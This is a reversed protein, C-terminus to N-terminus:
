TYIPAFDTQRTEVALDSLFQYIQVLLNIFLSRILGIDPQVRTQLIEYFAALAAEAGRLNASEVFAILKSSAKSIAMSCMNDVHVIAGEGLFHKDMLATLAEILALGMDNLSQFSHSIGISVSIGLENNLLTQISE